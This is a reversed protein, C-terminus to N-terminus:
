STKCVDSACKRLATCNLYVYLVREQLLLLLLINNNNNNNNNNFEEWKCASEVVWHGAVFDAKTCFHLLCIYLLLFLPALCLVSSYLVNWIDLLDSNNNNNNNIIIIIIIIMMM